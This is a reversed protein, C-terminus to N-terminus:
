YGISVKLSFPELIDKLHNLAEEKLPSLEDTLYNRGLAEYKSRGWEHYGLLSVKEISMRSLFRALNRMHQESDNSHPIVPVRIWIRKKKRVTRKLNELILENSVGTEVVHQMPDLHKIDYLVVDTYDLIKDLIEWRAFGCTDLATHLSRKKCGQLLALTFEPQFLPEGGSLTVGGGSNRYFLEDKGVEEVVEEVTKRDGTRSLAHTPCADVCKMCRDCCLRDIEMGGNNLIIADSPCAKVCKGCGDCKSKRLFIEPRLDQSEPNACWKCKLPCGKLFITTRIGPGDHISYRQIDFAIGDLDNCWFSERKNM